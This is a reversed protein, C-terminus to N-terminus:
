GHSYGAHYARPFAIVFEGPKQVAKYVPVKHDLLVNPPFLTTKGLLVDFAGDEGDSSLIDTTYVYERVVRVFSYVQVFVFLWCCCLVQLPFWYLHLVSVCCCRCSVSVAAVCFSASLCCWRCDSVAAVCVAACLCFVAAASFLASAFLLLLHIQGPLCLRLLLRNKIQPHKARM